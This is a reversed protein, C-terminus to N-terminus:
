ETVRKFGRVMPVGGSECNWGFAMVGNTKLTKNMLDKM